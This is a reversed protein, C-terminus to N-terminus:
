KELFIYFNRGKFKKKKKTAHRLRERIKDLNHREDQTILIDKKRSKLSFM